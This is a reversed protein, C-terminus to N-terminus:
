LVKASTRKAVDVVSGPLFQSVVQKVMEERDEGGEETLLLAPCYAAIDQVFRECRYYALAVLDVPTSGYGKYFMAENQENRWLNDTWAGIFMLDREKPALIPDDWDVMYFTGSQTILLNGAHIDAHCLVYERPQAKLREALQEAREIMELIVGRQENLLAALKQASSDTFLEREAQALFGKVMERWKPNYTEQPLRNRLAEPLRTEHVQRLAKGFEVRLANTIETSWGNQGEIFPYLIVAYDDMQAWLKGAKTEIPVIIEKVGQESLLKPVAVAVEDFRRRLKLFYDPGTTAVVRYVATDMDAGLPLFMIQTTEVDYADRLCSIIKGENIDPKELM